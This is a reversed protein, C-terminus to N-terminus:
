VDDDLEDENRGGWYGALWKMTDVASHPTEEGTMLGRDLDDERRILNSRTRQDGMDAIVHALEKLHNALIQREEQPLEDDRAELEQRVVEPDFEAPRRGNPDFATSLSQLVDFAAEIEAAFEDLRRGGLMKRLAILSGLADREPELGRKGDLLKELKQLHNIPQERLYGRWWAVM